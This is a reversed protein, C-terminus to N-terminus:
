KLKYYVARGTEGHQTIKGEKELEDLYREATADSVGVLGEVDNNTLRGRKQLEVLIKEKNKEKAEFQNPGEAEKLSRAKRRSAFYHGLLIGIVGAIILYIYTM